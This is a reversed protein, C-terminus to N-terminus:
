DVISNDLYECKEEESEQKPIKESPRVEQSFADSKFDDKGEEQKYNECDSKEDNIKCEYRTQNKKPFVLSKETAM